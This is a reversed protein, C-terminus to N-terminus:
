KDREFERGPVSRMYKHFRIANNFLVTESGVPTGLVDRDYVSNPVNRREALNTDTGALPAVRNRDFGVM